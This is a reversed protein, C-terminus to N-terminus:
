NELATRIKAQLNFRDQLSLAYNAAVSLLRMSRCFGGKSESVRGEAYVNINGDLRRALINVRINTSTIITVLVKPHHCAVPYSSFPCLVDQLTLWLTWPVKKKQRL